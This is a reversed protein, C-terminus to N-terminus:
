RHFNFVCVPRGNKEYYYGYQKDNEPEDVSREESGVSVLIERGRDKLHQDERDGRRDPRSRSSLSEYRVHAEFEELRDIYRKKDVREPKHKKRARGNRPFVM